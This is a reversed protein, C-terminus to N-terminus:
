PWYLIISPKIAVRHPVLVWKQENCLENGIQTTGVYKGFHVYALPVIIDSDFLPVFPFCCEFGFESM